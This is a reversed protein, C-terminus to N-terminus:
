PASSLCLYNPSSQSGWFVYIEGNYTTLTPDGAIGFHPEISSSWTTGNTTYKYLFNDSADNSRFGLYLVNNFVSLTPATSTQDSAAGANAASLTVGDSTTYYYIAHSSLTSEIAIYLVDNYVALGPNELLGISPYSVVTVENLSNFSSILLTGSASNELGVYIKSDLVAASPSADVSFGTALPYPASWSTGNPTYTYYANGYGDNYFLYLDGAFVLLAPNSIAAAVQPAPVVVQAKNGFTTGGTNHATYVYADGKGDVSTTGTYAVWLDSNWSVAGVGVRQSQGGIPTTSDRVGAAWTLTQSSGSATSFALFALLPLLVSWRLTRALPNPRSTEFSKLDRM